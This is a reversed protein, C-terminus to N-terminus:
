KWPKPIMQLPSHKEREKATSSETPAIYGPESQRKQQIVAARYQITKDINSLVAPTREPQVSSQGLLPTLPENETVTQLGKMLAATPSPAHMNRTAEVLGARWHSYDHGGMHLHYNATHGQKELEAFFKETPEKILEEDSGAQLWFKPKKLNNFVEDKFMKPLQNGQGGMYDEGSEAKSWFLSPSQAIVKGFIDPRRLATYIAQLGGMSIGMIATREPDETIKGFLSPKDRMAKPLTDALNDAVTPNCGYEEFRMNGPYGPPAPQPELTPNPPGHWPPVFVAVVPEIENAAILNDLIDAKGMITMEGLTGDLGIQLNCERKLDHNPPLYVIVLRDGEQLANEPIKDKIEGNKTYLYTEVTGKPVDPNSNIWPQPMGDKLTLALHGEKEFKAVETLNRAAQIAEESLTSYDTPERNPIIRFQEATGYPRELTVSWQKEINNYTMPIETHAPRFISIALMLSDLKKEPDKYVFTINKSKKNSIDDVSFSAEESLKTVHSVSNTPLTTVEQASLNNNQALIADQIKM